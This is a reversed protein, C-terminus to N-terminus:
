AAALRRRVTNRDVGLLDAIRQARMGKAALNLVTERLPDSGYRLAGIFTLEDILDDRDTKTLGPYVPFYWYATEKTFADTIAVRAQAGALSATVAERRIWERDVPAGAEVAKGLADMITQAYTQWFAATPHGDENTPDFALPEASLGGVLVSEAPVSEPQWILCASVFLVAPHRGPGLWNYYQYKSPWGWSCLELVLRQWREASPRAGAPPEAGKVDCRQKARALAPPVCVFDSAFVGSQPMWGEEGLAFAPYARNWARRIRAVHRLFAQDSQLTAARAVFRRRISPGRRPQEPPADGNLSGM